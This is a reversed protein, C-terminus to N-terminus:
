KTALLFAHKKSARAQAQLLVRNGHPHSFLSKEYMLVQRVLDSLTRGTCVQLATQAVYNGYPDQLIDLFHPCNILESIIMSTCQESKSRSLCGQVVNSGHKDMSLSVYKGRLRTLVEELIEPEIIDINILHQVVYNGYPDASLLQANAAIQALLRDRAEGTHPSNIVAYEVCKQLICCGSKDVAIELCNAAAEDLLPKNVQPPFDAICRKIVHNGNDSKALALTIRSLASIILYRQDPQTYHLLKQVVRTGHTDVCANKLREEDSIVSVLIEYFQEENAVEILRQILYNSFPHMMLEHLNNKVEWFIMAIAEPKEKVLNDQLFRCNIQEKAVESVRGRVQELSTYTVMQRQQAASLWSSPRPRRFCRRNNHLRRWDDSGLSNNIERRRFQESYSSGLGHGCHHNSGVLSHMLPSYQLDLLRTTTTGISDVVGGGTTGSRGQRCAYAGPVFLPQHHGQDYASSSFSLPPGYNNNSFILSPPTPPPPMQLGMLASQIRLRNLTESLLDFNTGSFNDNDAAFLNTNRFDHSSPTSLSMRAMAADLDIQNHTTTGPFGPNQHVLGNSLYQNQLGTQSSFVDTQNNGATPTYQYVPTHARPHNQLALHNESTAPNGLVHNVTSFSSGSFHNAAPVNINSGSSSPFFPGEEM